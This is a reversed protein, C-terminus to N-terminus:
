AVIWDFYELDRLEKPRWENRGPRVAGTPTCRCFKSEVEESQLPSEKFGQFVYLRSMDMEDYVIPSGRIEKGKKPLDRFRAEITRTSKM